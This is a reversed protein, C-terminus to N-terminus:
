THRYIETCRQLLIHMYACASVCVLVCMCSQVILLNAQGNSLTWGRTQYNQTDATKKWHILTHTQEHTYKKSCAHTCTHIHTDGACALVLGIWAGASGKMWGDNTEPQASTVKYHIKLLRLSALYSPMHVHTCVCVSVYVNICVYLFHVCVCFIYLCVCLSPLVCIWFWVSVSACPRWWACLIMKVCVSVLLVM